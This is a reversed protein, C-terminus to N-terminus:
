PEMAVSGSFDQHHIPKKDFNWPNKGSNVQYIGVGIVIILVSLVIAPFIWGLKLCNM